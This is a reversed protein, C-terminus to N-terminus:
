HSAVPRHNEGPVGTEELSVSQWSIVSINNFTANLVMFWFVISWWRELCTESYVSLSHYIIQIHYTCSKIRTMSIQIFTRCYSHNTFLNRPKSNIWKREKLSKVIPKEPVTWVTANITKWSSNLCHCKNNKLFQESLTM